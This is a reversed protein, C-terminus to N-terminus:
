IEGVRGGGMMALYRPVCYTIFIVGGGRWGEAGFYIQELNKQEPEEFYKSWFENKAQLNRAKPALLQVLHTTQNTM